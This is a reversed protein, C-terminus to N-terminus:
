HAGKLIDQNCSGTESDSNSQNASETDTDNESNETIDYGANEEEVYADFNEGMESSLEMKEYEDDEWDELQHAPQESAVGDVSSVGKDLSMSNPSVPPQAKMVTERLKETRERIEKLRDILKDSREKPATYFFYDTWIDGRIFENLDGDLEINHTKKLHDLLFDFAFDPMQELPPM